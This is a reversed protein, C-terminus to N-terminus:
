VPGGMKEPWTGDPLTPPNWRQRATRHAATPVPATGQGDAGYGSSDVAFSDTFNATSVAEGYGPTGDTDADYTTLTVADGDTVSADINPGDDAFSFAGSIDVTESDSASDNDGDIITAAATLVANGAALM